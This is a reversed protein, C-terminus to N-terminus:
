PLASRIVGVQLTSDSLGIDIMMAELDIGLTEVGFPEISRLVDPAIQAMRREGSGMQGSVVALLDRVPIDVCGCLHLLDDGAGGEVKDRSKNRMDRRLPHLQHAIGAQVCAGDLALAGFDSVGGDFSETGLQREKRELREALDQGIGLPPLADFRAEAVVRKSTRAAPCRHLEGFDPLGFPAVHPHPAPQFGMTGEFGEAFSEGIQARPREIMKLLQAETKGVRGSRSGVSWTQKERPHDGCPTEDQGPETEALKVLAKVRM